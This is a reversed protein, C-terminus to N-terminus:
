LRPRETTGTTSGGFQKPIERIGTGRPGQGQQDERAWAKNLQIIESPNMAPMGLLISISNKQETTIEDLKGPETILELVKQTLDAHIKPWGERLADVMDETISGTM